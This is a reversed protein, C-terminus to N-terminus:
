LAGLLSIKFRDQDLALGFGKYRLDNPDYINVGVRLFDPDIYSAERWSAPNGGSHSDCINASQIIVNSTGTLEVIDALIEYWQENNAHETAYQQIIASATGSFLMGIATGNCHLRGISCSHRHGMAGTFNAGVYCGHVNWNNGTAHEDISDIGFYFGQSAINNVSVWGGNNVMPLRIGCASTQPALMNLPALTTDYRGNNVTFFCLARADLGTMGHSIKAGMTGANLRLTVNEKSFHTANLNGLATEYGSGILAGNGTALTSELVTGTNPNVFNTWMGLNMCPEIAGRLRINPLTASSSTNLPIPLQCDAPNGNIIPINPTDIKFLGSPCDIIVSGGYDGADELAQLFGAGSGNGGSPDVDYDLIPIITDKRTDIYDIVDAMFARAQSATLGQGSALQAAIKANMAQRQTAM